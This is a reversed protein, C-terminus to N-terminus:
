LIFLKAIFLVFAIVVFGIVFTDYKGKHNPDNETDFLMAGHSLMLSEKKKTM